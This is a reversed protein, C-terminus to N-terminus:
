LLLVLLHSSIIPPAVLPKFMRLNSANPQLPAFESGQQPAPGDGADRASIEMEACSLYKM